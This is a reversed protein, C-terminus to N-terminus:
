ALIGPPISDIVTERLVEILRPIFNGDETDTLWPDMTTSILFKISEGEKADVGLRKAFADVFPQGYGDPGFESATVFMPTTPTKGGNYKQLSLKTFVDNNLTNAMDLDDNLSGDPNKFNFSYSVIIQDSGLEKFLEKAEEDDRLQNNTKDAIRMRIFELQAKIKEPKEGNVEAPIRQFPVIIFRSDEEMAMTILAAYFRKSNFLSMGLILGFGNEDTRVVRHSLYVAAAAAGPKSGEVGYVGVTPDAGGHYVVPATFTVLDRMTGNRYCLRGAPYPAYGAKHPDVTIIDSEGLVEYQREVYASMAMAPTYERPKALAAPDAYPDNRLMSAFYGGWAADVHIVFELGEKRFEDRLELVGALPDVASEETSGLVVVTMLVPRKQDLCQELKLRLRKVDMRAFSDVYIKEVNNQGIGVIAANKPWSYHMTSPAFIVPQLTQPLFRLYFETYGLNQLSYNTLAKNLIDDAIDYEDEIRKTLAVVDDVKLNLLQWSSLQILVEEGGGPLPVTLGRADKLSMENKLAEAITVPYYKLNRSAWMGELNAVSGDCTIHGWPRLSKEDDKPPVTYGLMRCLDDGVLMELHTTIPSAEAAVNNQNYLMAAFYGLMGPLTIDWLMHGQYRYSWFPVSGFLEQLLNEFHKKLATVSDKYDESDKIDKTVYPPDESFYAKRDESHKEIARAILEHFLEQNEAKPGLFWAALSTTGPGELNLAKDAPLSAFHEELAQVFDLSQQTPKPM